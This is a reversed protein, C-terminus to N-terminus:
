RRSPLVASLRNDLFKRTKGIHLQLQVFYKQVNNIVQEDATQDGSAVAARWEKLSVDGSAIRKTVTDIIEKTERTICHRRRNTAHNRLEGLQLLPQTAFDALNRGEQQGNRNRREQSPPM